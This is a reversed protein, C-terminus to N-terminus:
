HNFGHELTGGLPGRIRNREPTEDTGGHGDGKIVRHIAAAFETWAGTRKELEALGAPTLVYVRRERGGEGKRWEGVVLSQQELAHLAPYLTGEKCQLANDSRREIERAIAYGHLPGDRLVALVLTPTSGKLLERQTDM